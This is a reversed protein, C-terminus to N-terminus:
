VQGLLTATAEGDLPVATGLGARRDTTRHIFLDGVQTDLTVNWRGLWAPHPAFFSREVRDMAYGGLFNALASGLPVWIPAKDWWSNKIEWLERDTDYGIVLLTHGPIDMVVERGAALEKRVDLASAGVRHFATVRFNARHRASLPVVADNWEFEDLQRQSEFVAVDCGPAPTAGPIARRVAELLPRDRYPASDELPIPMRYAAEVASSNGQFGVLSTGTNRRSGDGALAGRAGSTQYVHVLYQESLDVVRGFRRHIAAEMAATTAFAYGTGRNLQFKNPTQWTRLSVSVPLPSAREALRNMMPPPRHAADILEDGLLGMDRATVLQQEAQLRTLVGEVAAAAGSTVRVSGSALHTSATHSIM